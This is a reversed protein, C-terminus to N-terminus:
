VEHALTVACVERAGANRLTRAADGLTAGTTVVDDVLLARGTLRPGRWAFVDKLNKLREARSLEVQPQVTKIRILSRRVTLGARAAIARALEAAPNFGRVRDREPNSPIPVIAQFLPQSQMVPGVREWARAAVAPLAAQAGGIKIKHLARRLAPAHYDGYSTFGTLQSTRRDLRCFQGPQDVVRNCRQCHTVPRTLQSAQHCRDCFWQGREDCGLCRTPFLLDALLEGILPFSASPTRM